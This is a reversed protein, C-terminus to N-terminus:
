SNGIGVWFINCSVDVIIDTLRKVYTIIDALASKLCDYSEPQKFIALIHNGVSSCLLHLYGCAIEQWDKDWGWVTERETKDTMFKAGKDSNSILIQMRICLRDELSQQVGHTDNPTPKIDWLSNLESIRQTYIAM